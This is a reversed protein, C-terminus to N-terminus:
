DDSSPYGLQSLCENLGTKWHPIHIGYTNQIKDMSMVSYLPRRAPTPYESSPIPHVECHSATKKMIESAVGFWTTQGTNAFNYTQNFDRPSNVGHETKQIIEMVAKALHRAYTPAGKQDCVVQIVKRERGLRIMTKVFNHGFSSIVWSTRIILCPIPNNRIIKEGELKTKGYVSVPTTPSDEGMPERVGNNYVYDTSFHILRTNTHLLAECIYQCALVNVSNCKEPEGEAKDVATYAACNIVYNYSGDSFQKKLVSKDTIDLNESNFFDFSWDPVLSELFQFEQGLQGSAGLVALKLHLSM